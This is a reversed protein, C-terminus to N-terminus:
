LHFIFVTSGFAIGLDPMLTMGGGHMSFILLFIWLCLFYRLWAGTTVREWGGVLFFIIGM